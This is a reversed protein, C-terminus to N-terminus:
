RAGAGDGSALALRARRLGDLSQVRGPALELAAQFARAAEAPHGAELQVEGLLELSPKRVAPPGFEYPMAQEDAGARALTALAEAAHGARLAELGDLQALEIALATRMPHRPPIAAADMAALCARASRRAREVKAAPAASSADRLALFADVWDVDFAAVPVASVDFAAQVAPEDRPGGDILFRARFAAWSGATSADSDLLDAGEALVPHDHLATVCGALVQRADDFRRLQLQGYIMFAQFHGCASPPRGAARRLEDVVRIAAENAKVTDDWLGMALFIHSTMHQAHPADPAIGAYARAAALGLPAHLPDDVAHILYHAAGPHRPHAHFVEELLAAAQMYRRTDRGAHATGMLALAYFCTADIDDPASDHLDRMAEAYRDDRDFKAGEGYLTEVAALYARERPTRAKAAREAPSAGLRALAARAAPLDQQAWLPHNYTMAEGWFALAFSPDAQQARRFSEAALRYEFDHLLALGALFDAQAAAAGSNAFAVQGYVRQPAGAAHAPQAQAGVLALLGAALAAATRRLRPSRPRRSMTREGHKFPALM